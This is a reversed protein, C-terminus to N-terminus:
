AKPQLKETYSKFSNLIAQWGQKQAEEPNQQEPDFSVSISTTDEVSRFVISAKRGDDMTYSINQNPVADTYTGTFDFGESGDRAEMRFLFKGGVRLDNEASPCHWDDSAHNWQTIHEPETYSRWVTEVPANITANVEIQDSNM